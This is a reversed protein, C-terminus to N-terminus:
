NSLKQAIFSVWKNQEKREVITFGRAEMKEQVMDAKQQIIGSTIFYGGDFLNDWADDIVLLLIDALINSIILHAQQSVNKLLDNQQVTIRTDFHNLDRNAITSKVAVEDLDYSYVHKAGLLIAAISLIGSGSGVDLVIDEPTLVQELSQLSLVTTPHTGTGFAMGPDITIIKENPQPHYQEWSPVIVLQNSVKEPKFYKKWENEWDEEQVQNVKVDNVGLDIELASLQTIAEKIATLKNGWQDNDSFYAKLIVGHKPYKKPDLEYLEGFRDRKQRTLDAPDEIVVGNAGYDNLLNSVPELAENTTHIVM